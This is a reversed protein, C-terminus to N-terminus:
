TSISSAQATQTRTVCPQYIEGLFCDAALSIGFRGYSAAAVGLTVVVMNLAYNLSYKETGMLIGCAYVAAPM